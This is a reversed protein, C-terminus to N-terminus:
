GNFVVAPVYAVYSPEHLIVEDGPDILATMAAAVAESAGVTVCIEREPDVNWGPYTRAVKEAIADRFRKAGWTIAYQNIDADIAEAAARKLEPPCAFDPFGQGLNVANAATALRSMERIVSETFGAAKRSITPM